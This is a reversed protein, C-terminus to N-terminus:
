TKDVVAWYYNERGKLLQASYFHNKWDNIDVEWSEKHPGFFPILKGSKVATLLNVADGTVEDNLKIFEENDRESQALFYSLKGQKDKLLFAGQKNLLYFEEIANKQCWDTFFEIFKQDTLISSRSAELHAVISATKEYFYEYVLEDVYKKLIDAVNAGKKIFKDILGQNFGEVAQEHTAEGTLLIKKGAFNKLQQCLQLGNMEAMHYDVILVAIDATKNSLNRLSSIAPLDIDVPFHDNVGFMESETFERKFSIKTLPSQYHEFYSIAENASNFTICPYDDSFSVKAADLFLRDDDIWGITPKFYFLPLKATM